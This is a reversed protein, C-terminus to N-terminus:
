IELIAINQFIWLAMVWAPTPPNHCCKPHVMEGDMYVNRHLKMLIQCALVFIYSPVSLIGTNQFIWLAMVWAITLPNHCCKPHMMGEDMYVNRHLKMLIQCVLVFICSPVSLIGINQFIWLAMVWATTPPNHCCKPHMMGGDMYVNRHFQM